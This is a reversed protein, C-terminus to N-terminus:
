VTWANLLWTAIDEARSTLSEVERQAASRVTELEVLPPASVKQVVPALLSPAEEDSKDDRIILEHCVVTTM